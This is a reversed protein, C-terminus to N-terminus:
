HDTSRIRPENETLHRACATCVWRGDARILLYDGAAGCPTGHDGKVNCTPHIEHRGDEPDVGRDRLMQDLLARHADCAWLSVLQTPDERARGLGLATPRLRCFKAATCHEQEIV